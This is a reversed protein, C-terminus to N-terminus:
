KTEEKLRVLIRPKEDLRAIPEFLSIESVKGHLFEVVRQVETISTLEFVPVIMPLRKTDLWTMVADLNGATIELPPLGLVIRLNPAFVGEPTVWTGDKDRYVADAPAKAARAEAVKGDIYPQYSGMGKHYKRILPYDDIPM